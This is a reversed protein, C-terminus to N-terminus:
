ENKILNEIIQSQSIHQKTAIKELKRKADVTLTFSTQMKEGDNINPEFERHYVKETEKKDEYDSDLIHDEYWQKAKDFSVPTIKSGGQLMQGGEADEAYKSKPGGEGALFFEGTRKKYLAEKYYHFDNAPYDASYGGIKKATETDYSLTGIRDKM